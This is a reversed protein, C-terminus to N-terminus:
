LMVIRSLSDHATIKQRLAILFPLYVKPDTEAFPKLIPTKVTVIRLFDNLLSRVPQHKDSPPHPRCQVNFCIHM